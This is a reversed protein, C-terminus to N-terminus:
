RCPRRGWAVHRARRARLVRAARQACPLDQGRARGPLPDAGDDGGAAAASCSAPWTTPPSCWASCSRAPGTCARRCAPPWSWTTTCSYFAAGRRPGPQHRGDEDGAARPPRRAPRSGGPPWSAGCSRGSSTACRRTSRPRIHIGGHKRSSAIWRRGGTGALSQGKHYINGMRDFLRADSASRTWTSCATRCASEGHFELTGAVAGTAVAGIGRAARGSLPGPGARPGLRLGRAAGGRVARARRRHDHRWRRTGGPPGPAGAPPPWQNPVEANASTMAAAKRTPLM